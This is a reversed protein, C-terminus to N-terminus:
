STKPIYIDYISNKAIKSKYEPMIWEDKKKSYKREMHNMKEMLSKIRSKPHNYSKPYLEKLINLVGSMFLLYDKYRDDTPVRLTVEEDIDEPSLFYSFNDTEADQIWDRDNLFDIVDDHLTM